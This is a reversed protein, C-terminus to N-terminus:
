HDKRSRSALILMWAMLDEGCAVSIKLAMEISMKPLWKCGMIRFCAQRLSVQAKGNKWIWTRVNAIYIDASHQDQDKIM